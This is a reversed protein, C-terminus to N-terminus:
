RLRVRRVQSHGGAYPYAAERPLAARLRYVGPASATLAKAYSFYGREDTHVTAFTQWRHASWTELAVLKGGPPLPSGEVRGSLTVSGPTRVVRPRVSLTVKGQTTARLTRRAPQLHAAGGYAIRMLRSPGAPVIFSFQGQQNTRITTTQPSAGPTQPAMVVDVAAGALPRGQDTTLLGHLRKGHGFALHLSSPQRRRPPRFVTACRRHGRVRHCRKSMAHLAHRTSLGLRTAQRLPVRLAFDQGGGALRTTAASNGALDTVVARFRLQGKPVRSDDLRASLGSQTVTTPIPHWTSSRGAVQYDVEGDAIGSTPDSASVEIDTPDAPDDAAFGGLRPPDPDWRLHADDNDFIPNSNAAEDQFWADVLYDGGAPATVPITVTSANPDIAVTKQPKCHGRDTAPCLQYVVHSIPAQTSPDEHPKTLSVSLDSSAHWGDGQVIASSMPPAPPDLDLRLWKEVQYTWTGSYVLPPAGNPQPQVYYYTDNVDVDLVHPGNSLSAPIPLAGGSDYDGPGVPPSYTVSPLRAQIAGTTPDRVVLDVSAVTNYAPVHIHWSEGGPLTTWPADAPMPQMPFSGYPFSGYANASAAGGVNSVTVCEVPYPLPCPLPSADARSATTAAVAVLTFALAAGRGVGRGSWRLPNSRSSM